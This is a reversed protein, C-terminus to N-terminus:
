DGAIFTTMKWVGRTKTFGARYDVGSRVYKAQVWAKRKDALEIQVWDRRRYFPSPTSETRKWDTVKVVSRDLQAAVPADSRPQTHATVKDVLIGSEFPDLEGVDANFTYPASFTGDKEFNGGHELVWVLEDWLTGQKALRRGFEGRGAGGGFDLQIREAIHPSLRRFDRAKAAAILASLVKVLAPDRAAENIPRVPKQAAAPLSLPAVLAAAAVLCLALRRSPQLM